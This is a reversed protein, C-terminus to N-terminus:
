IRPLIVSYSDSEARVALHREFPSVDAVSEDMNTIFATDASQKSNKVCDCVENIKQAGTFFEHSSSYEWMKQAAPYFIKDSEINLFPTRKLEICKFAFLGVHQNKM